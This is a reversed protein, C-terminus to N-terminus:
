AQILKLATFPSTKLPNSSLMEIDSPWCVDAVLAVM